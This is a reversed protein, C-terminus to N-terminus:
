PQSFLLVTVVKGDAGRSLQYVRDYEDDGIDSGPAGGLQRVLEPVTNSHGVVLVAGGDIAHLRTVLTAPKGADYTEVTAGAVQATPLATQQTRVTSSSFVAKICARHLLHAINRARAQGTPTLAPDKAAGAEKEGHRVLYIFAPDALAAVPMLVLLTAVVIRKLM